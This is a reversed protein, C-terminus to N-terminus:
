PRAKRRQGEARRLALYIVRAAARQEFRDRLWDLLEENSMEREADGAAEAEM